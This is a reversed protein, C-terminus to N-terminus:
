DKWRLEPHRKRMTNIRQSTIGGHVANANADPGAKRVAFEGCIRVVPCNRLCRKAIENQEAGPLFFDDPDEVCATAYHGWTRQDQAPIGRILELEQQTYAADDRRAPLLTPDYRKEM